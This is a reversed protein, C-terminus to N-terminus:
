VEKPLLDMGLLRELDEKEYKRESEIKSFTLNIM